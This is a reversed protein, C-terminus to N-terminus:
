VTRKPRGGKFQKRGIQQKIIYYYWERIALISLPALVMFWNPDLGTIWNVLQGVFVFTWFIATIINALM